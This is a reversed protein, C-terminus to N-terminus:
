PTRCAQPGGLTVLLHVHNTMLVPIFPAAANLPQLATVVAVHAARESQALV